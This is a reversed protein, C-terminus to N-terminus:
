KDSKEPATQLKAELGKIRGTGQNILASGIGNDKVSEFYSEALSQYLEKNEKALDAMYMGKEKGSINAENVEKIGMLDLVDSVKIANIVGGEVIKKTTDLLAYPTLAGAQYPNKGQGIAEQALGAMAKSVIRGAEGDSNELGALYNMYTAGEAKQGYMVADRGASAIYLNRVSESKLLNLHLQRNAEKAQAEKEAETLEKQEEKAM